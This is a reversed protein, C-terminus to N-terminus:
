FPQSPMGYGMGMGSMLPPYQPQTGWTPAAYPLAGISSFGSSSSQYQQQQQQGQQQGQQQQKYSPDNHHKKFWALLRNVSHHVNGRYKFGDPVVHIYEKHVSMSGPIYYLVFYGPNEQSPAIHYPARKPNSKKESQISEIMDAKNLVLFCAHEQLEKVFMLMPDMFRVVLDDLNEYTEKDIKMTGEETEEISIHAYTGFWWRSTITLYNKLGTPHILYSGVPKNVLLTEEVEQRSKNAFMRHVYTRPIISPKATTSALSRAAEGLDIEEEVLWPDRNPVSYADWSSNSLQCTLQVTWLEKDVGIVQAQISSGRALRTDGADMASISGNIFNPLTVMYTQTVRDQPGVRVTVVMGPDLAGKGVVLDFIASMPTEAYVRPDAFPAKLEEVLAKVTLEKYVQKSRLTEILAAIDVFRLITPDRVVAEHYTEEGTKVAGSVILDDGIKKAIVYAVPHIRTADLPNYDKVHLPDTIKLFAVANDWVSPGLYEGPRLQSHEASDKLQTRSDLPDGGRTLGELLATAKRAGLGCVFQLVSQMWKHSLIRNLDVGVDSVVRVFASELRRKLTASPVLKRLPHLDLGLIYDQQTFLGSIELLPDLLRRACSACRRLLLATEPTPTIFASANFEKDAHKTGQFIVAVDVPMAVSKIPEVSEEAVYANIIEQIKHFFTKAFPTDIGVCVVFPSYRRFLHKLEITDEVRLSALMTLTDKIEGHEDVVAVMAMVEKSTLPDGVCISIMPPVVEYEDDDPAAGRKKKGGSVRKMTRPSPVPIGGVRLIKELAKETESLVVQTADKHLRAKTRTVLKPIVLNVAEVLISRRFSAWLYDASEKDHAFNALAELGFSAGIQSTLREVHEQAISIAVEILGEETAKVIQLFLSTGEFSSLPKGKLHRVNAYPHYLDIYLKGQPTAKTSVTGHLNFDEAIRSRFAPHVALESAFLARVGELVARSSAFFPSAVYSAAVELPPQFNYASDSAFPKGHSINIALEHPKIGLHTYFKDLNHEKALAKLDARVPRRQSPQKPQDSQPASTSTLTNDSEDVVDDELNLSSSKNASSPTPLSAYHYSFFDSLDQVAEETYAAKLDDRLKILRLDVSITDEDPLLKLLTNKRYQLSYWQQDLDVIHWLDNSTFTPSWFERRYHEIFPMEYHSVLLFTLIDNVKQKMLETDSTTTTMMSTLLNPALKRCIWEAEDRVEETSPVPRKPFALQYREPVDTLRIQEDRETLYMEKLAEPEYQKKLAAFKDKEEDNGGFDVNDFMGEMTPDYMDQLWEDNYIAVADEYQEYNVMMQRKGKKERRRKRREEPDENEDETDSVLFDDDESNAEGEVDLEDDVKSTSEGRETGSAKHRM